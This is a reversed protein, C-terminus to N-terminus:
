SWNSSGMSEAKANAVPLITLVGSTLAWIVAALLEQASRLKM